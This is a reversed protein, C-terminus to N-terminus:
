RTEAKAKIQKKPLHSKRVLFLRMSDYMISKGAECNLFLNLSLKGPQVWGIASHIQWYFAGKNSNVEKIHINMGGNTKGLPVQSYYRIGNMMYSVGLGPIFYKDNSDFKKTSWVLVALHPQDLEIDGLSSQIVMDKEPLAKALLSYKGTFKHDNVLSFVGNGSQIKWDATSEFDEPLLSVSNMNELYILKRGKSVIKEKVGNNWNLFIPTGRAGTVKYNEIKFNNDALLKIEDLQNDSIIKQLNKQYVSRAYLYYRGDSVLLLENKEFQGGLNQRYNEVDFTKVSPYYNLVIEFLSLVTFTAVLSYGVWNTSNNSKILNTLYKGTWLIGSALFILLLPLNFLYGRPYYALGSILTFCYTALFVVLPLLRYALSITKCCFIGVLIFPAFYILPGPLIKIFFNPVFYLIKNFYSSYVKSHGYYENLLQLMGDIYPWYLLLSGVGMFLFISFFQYFKRTRLEQNLDFEKYLKPIILVLAIWVALSLIFIVSLPITYVSLIGSLFLVLGWVFYKDTKLLKLTAYISLTSFFMIFSYGRATQSYYIHIPSLSIILLALRAVENSPFIHRAIKYVMWICAIGLVFAPFRIAITNEEGFLLVMVRLAVNSFIQDFGYGMSWNWFRPDGVPTLIYNMPTYAFELLAQSEDGGGLARDLQYTRLFVGLLLLSILIYM